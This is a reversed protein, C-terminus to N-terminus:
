AICEVEPFQDDMLGADLKCQQREIRATNKRSNITSNMTGESRIPLGM